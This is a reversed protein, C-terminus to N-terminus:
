TESSGVGGSALTGALEATAAAISGPNGAAIASGLALASTAISIVRSIDKLVVLQTKAQATVAKINSLDAQISQLTAGIAKATFFHARDELAQADKKLRAFQDAPIPPDHEGLRFEDLAQSLSSFLDALRRAEVAPNIPVTPAM